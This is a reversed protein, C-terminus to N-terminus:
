DHGSSRNDKNRGRDLACIDVTGRKAVTRLADKCVPRHLRKRECILQGNTRTCRPDLSPNEVIPPDLSAPHGLSEAKEIGLSLLPRPFRTIPFDPSRLVESGCAKQASVADIQEAILQTRSRDM